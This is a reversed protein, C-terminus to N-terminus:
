CWSAHQFLLSSALWCLGSLWIAQNDFLILCLIFRNDIYLILGFSKTSFILPQVLYLSCSFSYLAFCGFLYSETIQRGHPLSRFTESKRCPMTGLDGLSLFDGIEVGTRIRRPRDSRRGDAVARKIDGGSETRRPSASRSNAAPDLAGGSHLSLRCRAGPLLHRQLACDGLSDASPRRGCPTVDCAPTISSCRRLASSNPHARRPRADSPAAARAATHRGWAVKGRPAHGDGGDSYPSAAGPPRLRSCLRRRSSPWGSQANPTSRRRRWTTLKCRLLAPITGNLM